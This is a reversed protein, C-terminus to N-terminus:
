WASRPSARSRLRSYGWFVCSLYGWGGPWAESWMNAGLRVAGWDLQSGGGRGAEPTPNVKSNGPQPAGDEPHTPVETEPDEEVPVSKVSLLAQPSFVLGPPELLVGCLMWAPSELLFKWSSTTPARVIGASQVPGELSGESGPAM